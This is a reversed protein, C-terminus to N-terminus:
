PCITGVCNNPVNLTVSSGTTLNVIGFKRYIGGGSIGAFNGFVLTNQSLTTRGGYVYVGGGFDNARNGSINDGVLNLNHSTFIAGGDYSAYNGSFGSNTITTTGSVTYVAGGHFDAYNGTLSANNLTLSGSHNYVAGGFGNLVSVGDADNDVFTSKTAGTPNWVSGGLNAVAGGSAGENRYFHTGSLSVDSGGLNAIAGGAGGIGSYADNYAFDSNTITLAARGSNQIAGGIGGDNDLFTVNNLSVTGGVNHLAGPETGLGNGGSFKLQSIAVNAYYVHLITGKGTLHITNNSGVITLNKKIDVLPASTIFNCGTALVITGGSPANLIANNLAAVSCVAAPAATAAQAATAGGAVAALAAAGALAGSYFRTWTM